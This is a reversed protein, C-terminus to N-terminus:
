TLRAWCAESDHVAREQLALFDAAEGVLNSASGLDICKSGHANFVLDTGVAADRNESSVDEIHKASLWEGLLRSCFFFGARVPGGNLEVWSGDGHWFWAVFGILCEWEAPALNVSSVVVIDWPPQFGHPITLLQKAQSVFEVLCGVYPSLSHSLHIAFLIHLADTLKQVAIPTFDNRGLRWCRLGAVHVLQGLETFHEAAHWQQRELGLEDVLVHILSALLLSVWDRALNFASLDSSM